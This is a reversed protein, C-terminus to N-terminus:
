SKRKDVYYYGLFRLLHPQLCRMCHLSIVDHTMGGAALAVGMMWSKAAGDIGCVCSRAGCDTVVRVGPSLGHAVRVLRATM